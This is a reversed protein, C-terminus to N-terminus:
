KGIQREEINKLRDISSEELVQFSLTTKAIGLLIAFIQFPM